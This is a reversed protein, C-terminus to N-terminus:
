PLRPPWSKHTRRVKRWRMSANGLNTRYPDPM